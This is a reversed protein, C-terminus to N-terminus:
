GSCDLHSREIFLPKTQLDLLRRIANEVVDVPDRTAANENLFDFAEKSLQYGASIVKEVAKGLRAKYSQLPQEFSDKSVKSIDKTCDENKRSQNESANEEGRKTKFQFSTCCRRCVYRISGDLTSIKDYNEVSRCVPCSILQKLFYKLEQGSPIPKEYRCNKNTCLFNPVNLGMINKSGNGAMLSGCKPCHPKLEKLVCVIYDLGYESAFDDLISYPKRKGKPKRRKANAESQSQIRDWLYQPIIRLHPAEIQTKGYRPMGIYVPNQQITRLKNVTIRGIKDAYKRNIQQAARKCDNTSAKVQFLDLVIAEFDPRKELFGNANVRYGFPPPGVWKGEKFKEIKGEQTRNGIRISEAHGRYCKIMVFLYQIPDEFNYEENIDRVIVGLKKLKHMLYPTEIVDRGLRDLDFVYAFDILGERALRMLEKLGKREFNRGSEVDEIPEQIEEVGDKIMKEKLRNTQSQLSYGNDKQDDTSVRRYIVGRKKRSKSSM